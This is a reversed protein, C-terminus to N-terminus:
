LQYYFIYDNFQKGQHFSHLTIFCLTAIVNFPWAMYPVKFASLINNFAICIFQSFTPFFIEIKQM